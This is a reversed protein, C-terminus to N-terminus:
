RKKADEEAQDMWKKMYVENVMNEHQKKQKKEQVQMDLQQKIDILRRQNDYKRKEENLADRQEKEIQYQVVRRELEREQDNSKKVTDAMRNMFLQIKDERAKWENQRKLEQIELM